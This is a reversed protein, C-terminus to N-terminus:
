LKPERIFVRFGNLIYDKTTDNNRFLGIAFRTIIIHIIKLDSNELSLYCKKWIKINKEKTIIKIKEILNLVILVFFVFLIYFYKKINVNVNIKKKFMIRKVNKM